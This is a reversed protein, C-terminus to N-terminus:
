FADSAPSLRAGSILREEVGDLLWCRIFLQTGGGRPGQHVMDARRDGRDMVHYVASSYEVRITRLM